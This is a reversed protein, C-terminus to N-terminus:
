MWLQNNVEDVNVYFQMRAIRGEKAVVTVVEKTDLRKGDLSHGEPWTGEGSGTARYACCADTGNDIVIEPDFRVDPFHKYFERHLTAFGESNYPYPAGPDIIEAGDTMLSVLLNPDHSNVADVFALMLDGASQLEADSM